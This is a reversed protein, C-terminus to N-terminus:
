KRLAKILILSILVLLVIGSLIFAWYNIVRSEAYMTYDEFMLAIADVRWSVQNGVPSISNTETLVGPMEVVQNYNEMTFIQLFLNLQRNSELFLPPEMEKLSLVEENGTWSAYYDIFIENNETELEEVKKNISDQYKLVDEPNLTPSNLQKIGSQLASIIESSISEILFDEAKKDAQEFRSSDTKNTLLVNGKLLNLDDDTLYDHYDLNTFPNTAKITEKFSLYSYFFGFRKDINISRVLQKRWSTDSQIKANLEDSGLYKKTYTLTYPKNKTTSDIVLNQQWSADIPYPLTANFVASSDDGRVIIFRTFSGDENITTKVTIERCSAFSLLLLVIIIISHRTKM